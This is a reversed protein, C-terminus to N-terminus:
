HESEEKKFLTDKVIFFGTQAVACIFVIMAITIVRKPGSKQLPVIAPQVVNYVPTKARLKTQAIIVQQVAQNYIAYMTEMENELFDSHTKYKQQRLNNRTDAYDSFDQSAKLYDKRSKELFEQAYKLDLTEKKTRYNLIYEQLMHSVSDTVIQAVYADEFTSSIVILGTKKDEKVNISKNIKKYLRMKDPSIYAESVIPDEKDSKLWDFISTSSEKELIYESLTGKFDGKLTQVKIGLIQESFPTSSIVVPYIASSIADDSGGGLGSLNVGALSALSALNGGLSFSSSSEPVLSTSSTYYNHTTFLAVSALVFVSSLVIIYSKLHSKILTIFYQIEITNKM